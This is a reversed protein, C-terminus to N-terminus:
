GAVEKSPVRAVAIPSDRRVAASPRHHGGRLIRAAASAADLRSGAPGRWTWMCRRAVRRRPRHRGPHQRGGAARVGPSRAVKAACSGIGMRLSSPSPARRSRHWGRGVSELIRASTLVSRLRIVGRAIRPVPFAPLARPSRRHGNTIAWSGMEFGYSRRAANQAQALAEEGAAASVDFPNDGGKRAFWVKLGRNRGGRIM